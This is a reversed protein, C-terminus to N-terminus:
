AASSFAITFSGSSTCCRRWQPMLMICARNGRGGRGACRPQCPLVENQKQGSEVMGVGWWWWWWM